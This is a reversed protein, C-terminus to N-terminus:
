GEARAELVIQYATRAVQRTHGLGARRLVDRLRVEGAQNGLAWGGEQSLACPTCFATSAAYYTRAIPTLNESLRDAAAPEVVLLAGGDLLAARAARAAGVPDGMDHLCDLMMVLDFEDPELADARSVRFAVRDSVGASAAAARARDISPGHPDVGLVRSAPFAQAVTVAAGGYGCGVDAIRGGAALRAAIDGVAEIWGGLQSQCATRFFRAAGEHLDAHHEGWGIGEGSRFADCLTDVCRFIAGISQISGGLFAPSREDAIVAAHAAPLSFRETEDDYVIWGGAAQGCLWERVYREACGTRAALEAATMSQGASMARYLGLRDGVIAMATGAAAALEVGVTGIFEEVAETTTM